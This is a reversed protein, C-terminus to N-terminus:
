NIVMSGTGSLPLSGIVSGIIPTIPQYTFEVRVSVIDGTSGIANGSVDRCGNGGTTEDWDGAPVPDSSTGDNCSIHVASIPGLSAAMRNVAAVVHAKLSSAGAPCVWAGPTGPPIKAPEDYCGPTTPALGVWPVEVAGLRAGERAAQSLASNAYVARGADFIGILVLLFVPLILAMEVLGQGRQAQSSHETAHPEAMRREQLM